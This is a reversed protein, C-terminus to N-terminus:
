LSIYRKLLEDKMVKGAANKPLADIFDVSKPKKYSALRSKCYEIVEQEDIAKGSKTVVIAKVSEGWYEDPVGIVAAELILPHRHLVTEIEAPYINDGGSVILEKKRGTLYLYGDRDIIGVDGTYLWGEKLTEQTAVTNDYYGKMVNPGRCM